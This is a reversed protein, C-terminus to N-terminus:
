EHYIESFEITQNYSVIKIYLKRQSRDYLNYGLKSELLYLQSNIIVM